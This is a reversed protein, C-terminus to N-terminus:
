DPNLICNFLHNVDTHSFKVIKGDLHKNYADTSFLSNYPHSMLPSADEKEM